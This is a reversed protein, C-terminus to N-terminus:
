HWLRDGQLNARASIEFLAVGRQLKENNDSKM